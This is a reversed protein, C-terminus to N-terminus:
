ILILSLIGFDIEDGTHTSIKDKPVKAVDPDSPSPNPGATIFTTVVGKIPVAKFSATVKGYKLFRTSSIRTGQPDGGAAKPVITLGVNGSALRTLNGYDVTMDYRSVDLQSSLDKIPFPANQLNFFRSLDKFDIRQTLCNGTQQADSPSEAAKQQPKEVQEAAKQQPKDVQQLKVVSEIAHTGVSTEVDNRSSDERELKLNPMTLHNGLDQKIGNELRINQLMDPVSQAYDLADIDNWISNQQDELSAKTPGSEHGSVSQYISLLALVSIM